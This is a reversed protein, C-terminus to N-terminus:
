YDIFKIECGKGDHSKDWVYWAFKWGLKAGVWEIRSNFVYISKLYKGTPSEIENGINKVYWLLALKGETIDFLHKKVKSQTTFPPNTIINQHRELITFLDVGVKGFGYDHLDSSEVSYGNEQLVNSIAGNGCCPEYINGTFSEYRLLAETVRKPTPVFDNLAM